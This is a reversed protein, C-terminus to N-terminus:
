VPLTVTQDVSVKSLVPDAGIVFVIPSAKSAAKAALASPLDYAWIASVNRGVLEAALSSLRDYHGDAWRFEISLNRGEVFGTEKLGQYFAALAGSTPDFSETPKLFASLFGITRPPGQAHAPSMLATAGAIVIFERRRM